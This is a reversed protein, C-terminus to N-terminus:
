VLMVVARLRVLQDPPRVRDEFTRTPRLVVAHATWDALVFLAVAAPADITPRGPSKGM